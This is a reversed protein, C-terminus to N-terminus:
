EKERSRSRTKDSYFFFFCHLCWKATKRCENTQRQPISWPLFQHLWDLRVFSQMPLYMDNDVKDNQRKLKAQCKRACKEKKLGGNPAKRNWTFMTFSQLHCIASATVASVFHFAVVALSPLSIFISRFLFFLSLFRNASRSYKNSIFADFTDCFRVSACIAICPRNHRPFGSRPHTLDNTHWVVWLRVYPFRSRAFRFRRRVHRMDYRCNARDWQKRASVNPVCM